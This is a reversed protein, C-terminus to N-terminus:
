KNIKQMTVIKYHPLINWNPQSSALDFLRYLFYLRWFRNPSAWFPWIFVFNHMHPLYCLPKSSWKNSFWSPFFFTKLTNDLIFEMELFSRLCLFEQIQWRWNQMFRSPFLPSSIAEQHRGQMWCLHSPSCQASNLVTQTSLVFAFEDLSNRPM